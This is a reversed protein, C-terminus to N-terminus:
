LDELQKELRVIEEAEKELEWADQAQKLKQAALEQAAKMDAVYKKIQSKTMRAHSSGPAFETMIISLFNYKEEKKSPM